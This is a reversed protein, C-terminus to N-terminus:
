ADLLAEVGPLAKGELFEMSAGGGTSVHTIRGTLGLGRVASVTDGGGVVSVGPCAAVAEGVTRTGAAFDPVEFLGMPGNWFVTGASRLREAFAAATAPGVDLGMEGAPIADVGVVRQPAGAAAEPAVVVDTPLVFECSSGAAASLVARASDATGEEVRSRGVELGQAALLPFCMAGGVLLTDAVTLMKEIVGIKDSVKAGGLLVVFPRAPDALLRGLVELERAMLLGALGPLVRPVGVTSAHARHATGFADNVYVEALAALAAAFAADNATEEAHFRLNELLLVGGPEVAAAAATAAPGVCDDTKAVPRGLLESLRRAVPDLRLEPVVQGKPRGLHSALVVRCGRETLYGITPLAARIRTDDAVEGAALPVNFDVRLFVRKGDVPYDTVARKAL